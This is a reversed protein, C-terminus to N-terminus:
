LIIKHYQCYRKLVFYLDFRRLIKKFFSLFSEFSSRMFFTKKIKQSFFVALQSVASIDAKLIYDVNALIFIDIIVEKGMLYKHKPRSHEYRDYPNLDEKDNTARYINEQHIVPVNIKEKLKEIITEDDTALFVQQIEPNKLLIKKIKYVYDDFKKVRHNTTNTMDTLRIQSGLTIKNQFNKELFKDIEFKIESRLAFRDWFLKKIELSIQSSHTYKKEYKLASDIKVSDLEIFNSIPRDIQQFYYEWSNMTDFIIESESNTTKNKEMDVFLRFDSQHRQNYLANLVIWINGATGVGAFLNDNDIKEFTLIYDNM